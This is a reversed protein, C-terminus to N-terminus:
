DGGSVFLRRIRDVLPSKPRARATAMGNGISVSPKGPRTDLSLLEDRSVRLLDDVTLRVWADTDEMLLTVLDTNLQHGPRNARYHGLIPSGALSLDGIADLVKHRVFEDPFRLGEPNAVRGQRLLIANRISGGLALGRDRLHDLQEAFGFTRAPAIEQRYRSPTLDISVSQMGIAEADFDIGVTIQQRTDPLLEAWSAGQQIRIPLRIVIISRQAELLRVGVHTLADVFPLASGDM